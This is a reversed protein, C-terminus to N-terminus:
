LVLPLLVATLVAGWFGFLFGAAIVAIVYLALTQNDSM